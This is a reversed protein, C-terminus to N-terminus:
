FESKFNQWFNQWFTEPPPFPIKKKWSFLQRQEKLFPLQRLYLLLASPQPAPIGMRTLAHHLHQATFSTRYFFGLVRGRYLADTCFQQWGYAILQHHDFALPPLHHLPFWTAEGADDGAQVQTTIHLPLTAVHLISITRGRPDRGPAGFVGAFYFPLGTLRTEEAIEREVAREIPEDIEIFGGPLAWFGRFPDRARRILLVQIEKELRFILGDVTVMPRPYEYTYPM